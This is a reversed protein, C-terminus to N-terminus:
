GIFSDNDWFAGTASSKDFKVVALAARRSLDSCVTHIGRLYADDTDRLRQELQEVAMEIRNGDSSIQGHLDHESLILIKAALITIAADCRLTM